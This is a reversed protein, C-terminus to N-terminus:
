KLELVVISKAPLHIMLTEGNLKAGKFEVPYVKEKQGFDNYDNMNHATLIEGDVKSVKSGRIECKLDIPKNPLM